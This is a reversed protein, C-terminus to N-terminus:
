PSTSKKNTSEDKSAAVTTEEKKASSKPSKSQETLGAASKDKNEIIDAPEDMLEAKRIAIAKGLAHLDLKLKKAKPFIEGEEEKVHHDIYEGLVKVKADYLSDRRNGSTIQEILAKVTAHEVAAEDILEQTDFSKRMAPYLLEEEVQAHVTLAVCIQNALASLEKSESAKNLLKQYTEFLNKVAKHDTTLLEVADPYSEPSKKSEPTKAPTDKSNDSKATTAVKSNSM